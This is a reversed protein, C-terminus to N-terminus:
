DVLRAVRRTVDLVLEKEMLGGPGVAGTDHGGHGADLVITRLPTLSERREAPAREVPRMVDLMLRPPDTLATARVDRPAGEFVIQASNRTLTVVHGRSRMHARTSYATGEIRSGLTAAIRSLEVYPRGEHSVTPFEAALALAPVLLLIACISARQVSMPRCM